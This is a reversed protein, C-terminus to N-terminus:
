HHKVTIADAVMEIELTTRMKAISANAISKATALLSASTMELLSAVGVIAARVGPTVSTPLFSVTLLAVTIIAVALLLEPWFVRLLRKIGSAYRM